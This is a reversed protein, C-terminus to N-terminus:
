TSIGEKFFCQHLTINNAKCVECWWGNECEQTHPNVHDKEFTFITTLDTSCEDKKLSRHDEHDQDSLTKTMQYAEEKEDDEEDDQPPGAASQKALVSSATEHIKETPKTAQCEADYFVSTRVLPLIALESTGFCPLFYNHHIALTSLVNLVNTLQMASSASRCSVFATLTDNSAPLPPPAPMPTDDDPDNYWDIASTDKLQGNSGLACSM